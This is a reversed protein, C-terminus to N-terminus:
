VEIYVFVCAVVSDLNQHGVLYATLIKLPLIKLGSDRILAGRDIFEDGNLTVNQEGPKLGEFVSGRKNGLSRGICTLFLAKRERVSAIPTTTVFFNELILMDKCLM